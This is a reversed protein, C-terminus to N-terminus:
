GESKMLCFWAGTSDAVAAITGVSPVTMPGMGVEGGLRKVEALAEEMTEQVIEYYIVWAPQTMGDPLTMIGALMVDGDQMVTYPGTGMDAVFNTWGTLDGYFTAATATDTTMLEMWSVGGPTAVYGGSPLEMEPAANNFFIFAAGQPDSVVSMRGVGPIDFPPEMVKAGAAAASSTADDVSQSVQLYSAWHPPIQLAPDAPAIGGFGRGNELMTYTGGEGFDLVSVTWGFLGTYFSKAAELDDTMLTHWTFRASM